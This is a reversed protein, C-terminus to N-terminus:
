LIYDPYKRLLRIDANRHPLITAFINKEGRTFQIVM